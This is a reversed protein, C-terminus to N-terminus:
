CFVAYSIQSHSSNLRTSKRDVVDNRALNRTLEPRTVYVPLVVDEHEVVLVSGGANVAHVLFLESDKGRLDEPISAEYEYRPIPPSAEYKSVVELSQLEVHRQQSRNDLLGGQIRVRDHRRLTALQGALEETPAILSVEVFEFFNEPNRYTFVYLELEPFAGHVEGEVARGANLERELKAPLTACAALMLLCTALVASRCRLKMPESPSDVPRHDCQKIM